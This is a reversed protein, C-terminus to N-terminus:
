QGVVQEGAELGSVIEVNSDGVLGIKIERSEKQGNAWVQVTATGDTRARVLAKPLVLVGKKETIIISADVTMGAVLGAPLM